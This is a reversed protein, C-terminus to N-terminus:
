SHCCYTVYHLGLKAGLPIYVCCDCMTITALVRSWLGYCFVLNALKRSAILCPGSLGWQFCFYLIVNCASCLSAGAAALYAPLQLVLQRMHLDVCSFTVGAHRVAQQNRVSMCRMRGGRGWFREPQSDCVAMQHVCCVSRWEVVWFGVKYSYSCSNVFM